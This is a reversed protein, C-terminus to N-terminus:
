PHCEVRPQPTRDEGRGAQAGSLAASGEIGHQTAREAGRLDSRGQPGVEFLTFGLQDERFYLPEVVMSYRRERRLMGGPVLERSSFVEGGAELQVHRKQNYALVLRSSEALAEPKGGGLAPGQEYLSLYCGPIGLKPLERAVADMLQDVDFTTTLMQGIERLSAAQREAQLRRRVEVRQAIEGIMVRAQQWLDEARSLTEDDGLYILTHRRLASLAGQWSAVDGGKAAVQRLIGELTSLFIGPSKGKLEASFADLLQEAREPVLGASLIGVAQGIESLIHDRQAALAIEFPQDTREVHGTGAQVVAPSSCGCSQRVVLETPLTVQEPVEEGALLALLIEAAQKGQEHTPQRVTTVSPTAARADVIDDFGVLAVDYPVRIGRAQLAELAGLAMNDNAAVVAEFAVKREDLLPSIATAGSPTLFDGPAILDADVPLGYEALVDTYVRYRQEAEENGEPGRIFAIRRHVHGEILHTIADRMGKENDVLVCPIDQVAMGISVMPLPHYHHCFNKMEEPGIVAGVVNSMVVLGDVTEADVLDYVINRQVEFGHPSCLWGGVFSILNVDRERAVDSIGSLLAAEYPDELRDILVGITPRANQPKSNRKMEAVQQRAQVLENMLQEKTKHEDKKKNVEGL